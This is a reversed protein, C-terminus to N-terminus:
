SIRIVRRVPKRRRERRMALQVELPQRVGIYRRRIRSRRAQGTDFQGQQQEQQKQQEQAALLRREEAILAEDFSFDSSKEEETLFKM